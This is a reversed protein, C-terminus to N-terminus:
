IVKVEYRPVKNGDIESEVQDTIVMTFGMDACLSEFDNKYEEGLIPTSRDSDKTLEAARIISLRALEKIRDNM